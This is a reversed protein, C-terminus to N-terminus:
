ATGYCLITYFETQFYNPVRLLRICFVVFTIWRLDRQHSLTYRECLLHFKVCILLVIFKIKIFTFDRVKFLPLYRRVVVMKYIFKEPPFTQLWIWDRWLWLGSLVTTSHPLRINWQDSYRYWSLRLYKETMIHLVQTIFLCHCNLLTCYKSPLFHKNLCFLVM